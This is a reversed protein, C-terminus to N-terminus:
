AAIGKRMIERKISRKVRRMDEVVKVFRNNFNAMVPFSSEFVVDQTAKDTIGNLNCIERVDQLTAGKLHIYNRGFRSDIEDFGKRSYQVGKKIEKELNETGAIVCGAKDELENYFHIMFRLAAPKLKDAEDIILLPNIQQRDAFFRIVKEALKDVSVYGSGASIGLQQCLNILFERRAWERAQIVFVGGTQDSRTYQSITASKGSGAKASIVVYEHQFRAFELLKTIMHFNSTEAIKWDGSRVDLADSVSLWMEESILDHNGNRMQSITAPSVNCKSAVKNASGLRTIEINIAKLIENKDINTM